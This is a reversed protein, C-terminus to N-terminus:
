QCRRCPTYGERRLEDASKVVVSKNHEAMDTVSPCTPLHYKKSNQNIVYVAAENDAAEDTKTNGLVSAGTEAVRSDGTAYDIAIGPQINYCYVNFCIGKGQDEVSWAEIQVGGAVLNDKDFHPTVRYLVHNGTEKVYASVMDEFQLMGAVNLYRTGTILNKENANEGALQYGILHCRNYLYNGDILDNYKVTHWGSPKIHGIEQREETPMIEECVNAYAAGCRGLSDLESYFEFARTNKKDEQSFDPIDNYLVVYPNGAYDPIDDITARPANETTEYRSENGSLQRDTKNCAFYVGVCGLLICFLIGTSIKAKKLRM